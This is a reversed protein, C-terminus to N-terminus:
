RARAVQEAWPDPRSELAQELEEALKDDGHAKLQDPIEPRSAPLVGRRLLHAWARHTLGSLKQEEAAESDGMKSLVMSHTLARHARAAAREWSPLPLRDRCTSKLSAWLRDRDLLPQGYAIAWILFEQGGAITREITDVAELRIDVDMPPTPQVTPRNGTYVILLDLDQSRVVPRVASGSAVVAVISPDKGAETLFDTLWRMAAAPIHKSLLPQTEAIM